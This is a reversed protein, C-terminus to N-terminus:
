EHAGKQAWPAQLGGGYGRSLCTIDFVCRVVVVHYVTIWPHYAQLAEKVAQPANPACEPFRDPRTRSM